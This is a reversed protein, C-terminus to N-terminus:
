ARPATAPRAPTATAVPTSLRALLSLANPVAAGSATNDFICWVRKGAQAAREMKGALQEIYEPPYESHYMVPSGHLRIYVTHAASASEPLPAVRPDAAVYGVGHSALMTSADPEFWTLHRPECVIDAETLARLLTFFYGASEAEYALKPPLQVLLCGLKEKLHAAEFLFQQLMPEVNRLRLEHTIAKPVKVSFRFDDPVSDRWREYTAPRHPRYFSSNIEVAPLVQAYRELHTGEDPFHMGVASSLAWGACGIYLPKTEDRSGNPQM